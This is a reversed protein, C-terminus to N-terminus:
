PIMLPTLFAVTSDLVSPGAPPPPGGNCSEPFLYARGHSNSGQIICTTQAVGLGALASELDTAEVVYVLEGDANAM